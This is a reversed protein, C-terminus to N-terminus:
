RTANSNVKHDWVTKWRTYRGAGSVAQQILVGRPYTGGWGPPHEHLLRLARRMLRERDTGYLFQDCAGSIQVVARLRTMCPNRCNHDPERTRSVGSTCGRGSGLYRRQGTRACTKVAPFHRDDGRVTAPHRGDRESRSWEALMVLSRCLQDHTMRQVPVGCVTFSRFDYRELFRDLAASESAPVERIADTPM